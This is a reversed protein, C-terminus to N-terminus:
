RPPDAVDEAHLLLWDWLQRGDEGKVIYPTDGADHLHLTVSDEHMDQFLIHTITDLNFIHDGARVLKM